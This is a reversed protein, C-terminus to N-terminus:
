PIRYFPNPLQFGQDAAGGELDSPQDGVNVIIHYGEAEISQRAPAKFDAASVFSRKGDEMFLATWGHYGAFLLNRETAERETNHRGTVFFVAVGRAKADNFLAVTPPIPPSKARADWALAGCPRSPTGSPPVSCPGDEVFLFVDAKIEPWNSLSTEDIDLVLAPKKVGAVHSDLYQRARADVAALERMYDGSDHYAVLQAKLNGLQATLNGLLTNYDDFNPPQACSPSTTCSFVLALSVALFRSAVVKTLLRRLITM